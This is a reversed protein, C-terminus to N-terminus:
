RGHRRAALLLGVVSMSDLIEGEEAMRLAEDFPFARVEIQETRDPVAPVPTLDRAVYLHAVEDLLSKSSHFATLRELHGAAVGCEEGLERRAADELSEGPHAAGTPIEWTDRRAVYRFQRVLLVTDGAGLPVVGVAPACSVVGYLTLQGGPIEVIAEDLRMWPNQYARRSALTRWREQRGPDAAVPVLNAVLAATRRPYGPRSPPLAALHAALRELDAPTDVDYWAPLFHVRLGLARARAVTRSLVESTSWPIEEFLQPCPAGMGILYYGGDWAPGLVVDAHGHTLALAAEALAETPLTPSDADVLIVGSAGRHFLDAAVGQLRSTLDDGRQALVEVASGLRSALPGTAEPPTVAVFPDVGPVAGIQDVRDLLFAEQLAMRAADSVAGRLRTKVDPGSAKAMVVLAPRPPM